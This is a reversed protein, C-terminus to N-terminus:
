FELNEVPGALRAKVKRVTEGRPSGRPLTRARGGEPLINTPLNTRYREKPAPSKHAKRSAGRRRKGGSSKQFSLQRRPGRGKKWIREVWTEGVRRRCEGKPLGSGEVGVECCLRCCSRAHDGWGRMYPKQKCGPPGDSCRGSQGRGTRREEAAVGCARSMTSKPQV